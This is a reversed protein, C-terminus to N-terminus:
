LKALVLKARMVNLEDRIGDVGELAIPDAPTDSRADDTGGGAKLAALATEADFAIQNISHEESFARAEQLWREALEVDGLLAYAKGRYYLLQSVMFTSGQRWATADVADLRQEFGQRNGRLAEVYALADLASVRYIFEESTHAVVTYANDAAVLDGAEVFASALDTLARLRDRESPYLRVAEWGHRIAESHNGRLKEDAMLDHHAIGQVHCDGIALGQSLAERHAEFAGPLNGKERLTQGMGSLALASLRRDDTADGLEQAVAYWRASEEWGGLRRYTRGLRRAADGAIAGSACVLAARYALGFLEGAGHLHGLGDVCDALRLVSRGLTEADEASLAALVESWSEREPDTRDFADFEPRVGEVHQELTTRDMTFEEDLVSRIARVVLFRTAIRQSAEADDERGELDKLVRWGSFSEDATPDANAIAKRPRFSRKDLDRHLVVAAAEGALFMLDDTVDVTLAARPTLSDVILFWARTGDSGLAVCCSSRIGLPTPLAPSRDAEPVDCLGPVGKGWAARCGDVTFDRRPPDWVLDLLSHVHLLGPGYEDVWVVAGRDAALLEM